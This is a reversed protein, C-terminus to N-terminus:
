KPQHDWDILVRRLGRVANTLYVADASKLDEPYLIKEHLGPKTKLLHRRYVGPLLGCSVPPTFWHGHREVFINNSAGETVQGDLNLFLADEYGADRAMNLAEAYLPRHTTKHFFLRDRPDTRQRAMLVRGPRTSAKTIVPLVEHKINLNGGPSLLLRVKRRLSDGCSKAHADLAVKAEARDFPFDFYGASDQLRDLHLEILPYGHQLLLSEVLSFSEETPALFDAKLRCERFEKQADSDIVIGSGVGMKANQGDLELTRIAVNFVSRENSFYGIAGTYVGRPEPEVQELLQMARVKPAGTISGCPFLARLIEQYGVEPRLEGSVASTMQWLTQYREVAFLSDVHVSGFSCLRGLDNRILDVIMVNESRNKADNRLWKAIQEDEATTRGRPATGKM